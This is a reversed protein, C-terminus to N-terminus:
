MSQRLSMTDQRGAISWASAKEEQIRKIAKIKLKGQTMSAVAAAIVAILELNDTASLQEDLQEKQSVPDKGKAVPELSEKKQKPSNTLKTMLKILYILFVLALFVIGIGLLAVQLGFIFTDM